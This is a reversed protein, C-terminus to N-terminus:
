PKGQIGERVGHRSAYRSGVFRAAHDVQFFPSPEGLPTPAKQVPLSQFPSVPAHSASDQGASVPGQRAGM